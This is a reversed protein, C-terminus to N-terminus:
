HFLVSNKCTPRLMCHITVCRYQLLNSLGTEHSLKYSWSGLKESFAVMAATFNLRSKTHFSLQPLIYRDPSVWSMLIHLQSNLLRVKWILIYCLTLETRHRYVKVPHHTMDQTQQMNYYQSQSPSWTMHRRCPM